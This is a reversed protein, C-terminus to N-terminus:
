GSLHLLPAAQAAFQRLEQVTSRELVLLLSLLLHLGALLAPTTIPRQRKTQRGSLRVLFRKCEEAAPSTDRELQWASVCAMCAVLLRKAIAAATEPQWEELELGSSKLLKHFTEIKWRWYYWVAIQAASVEWVNTLLIWHALVGGEATRVEVSVLRLRLPKGPVRCNKGRASTGWACGELVVEARPM